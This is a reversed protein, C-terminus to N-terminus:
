RALVPRARQVAAGARSSRNRYLTARAGVRRAADGHRVNAGPRHSANRVGRVGEGTRADYSAASFFLESEWRQDQTGGRLRPNDMTHGHAWACPPPSLAQAGAGVARHRGAGVRRQRRAVGLVAACLWLRRGVAPRAREAADGVLALGPATQTHMVNTMDIKGQVAPDPTFSLIPPAHPDRGVVMKELAAQPDARFEPLCEKTPMVAYFTPGRRHSVVGVMDPDMLWLTAAPAGETHPDKSTAVTPSARTRCAARACGSWSRWARTAVTPASWWGHACNSRRDTPTARRYM